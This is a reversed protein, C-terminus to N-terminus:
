REIVPKDKSPVESTAKPPAWSKVTTKSPLHRVADLMETAREFTLAKGTNLVKSGLVRVEDATIGHSNSLAVFIDIKGDNRFWYPLSANLAPNDQLKNSFEIIAKGTEVPIKDFEFAVSLAHVTNADKAALLANFQEPTSYFYSHQLADAVDLPKNIYKQVDAITQGSQFAKRCVEMREAGPTPNENESKIMFEIEKNSLENEKALYIQAVFPLSAITENPVTIKYEPYKSAFEKKQEIAAHIAPSMEKLYPTMEHLHSLALYDDYGAKVFDKDEFDGNEDFVHESYAPNNQEFDRVAKVVPARGTRIFAQDGNLLLGSEPDKFEHSIPTIGLPTIEQDKEVIMADYNRNSIM